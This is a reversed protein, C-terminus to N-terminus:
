ALKTVSEQIGASDVGQYGMQQWLGGSGERNPGSAREGGGSYLIVPM